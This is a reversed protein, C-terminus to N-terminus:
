KKEMPDNKWIKKFYEVRGSGKKYREYHQPNKLHFDQHKEEAKYFTSAPVIETVLPKDFLKKFELQFKSTAALKKQEENHYFIATRYQSGEDYFQRNLATPDITRWFIELLEQYSVKTTDFHIQLAEAHHTEGSCVEEYTPNETHGGMYGSVTSLVGPRGDFAAETCWFCGGAFTAVEIKSAASPSTKLDSVAIEQSSAGGSISGKQMPSKQGGEPVLEQRTTTPPPTTLIATPSSDQVPQCGGLFLLFLFLISSRESLPNRM